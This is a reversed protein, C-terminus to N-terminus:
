GRPLNRFGDTAAYLYAFLIGNYGLHAFYAPTVSGTRARIMTFVIGVLILLGLQWWAGWLQLAHMLGFLTGTLLVGGLVGFTRALVPYLFGRFITEEFVPALVVALGMMIFISERTRFFQEIPPPTEPKYLLSAMQVVVALVAGGLASLVYAAPQSSGPPPVRRWGITQWFPQGAFVRVRAFLYGFLLAFLMVQQLALVMTQVDAQKLFEQPAAGRSLAVLAVGAGIMLGSAFIAFVFVAIFLILDGWGWPVRLDEPLYAFRKTEPIPPPLSPSHGDAPEPSAGPHQNDPNIDTESM